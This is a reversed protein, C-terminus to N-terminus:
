GSSIQLFNSELLCKLGMTCYLPLDSDKKGPDSGVFSFYLLFFLDNNYDLRRWIGMRSTDM